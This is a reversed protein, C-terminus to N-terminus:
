RWMNHFHELDAIALSLRYNDGLRNDFGEPMIPEARTLAEANDTAWRM